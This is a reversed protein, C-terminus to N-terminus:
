DKRFQQTAALVANPYAAQGRSGNYRGLALFLNGNELDLYHRLITCGYRLNTRMYFLDQKQDGILDKWFPMVQMYGRAGVESVAYKKFGSEVQMLGLVLEPDLGARLAEYHVTKLLILRDEPNPVFRSLHKDMAGLWQVEESMTSFSSNKPPNDAVMQSMLQQTEGKLVEYQQNGAQATQSFLLLCLAYLLFRM